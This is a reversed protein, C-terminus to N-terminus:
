AVLPEEAAVGPTAIPGCVQRMLLQAAREGSRLAGEMYGFCGMHTHEGAFFLRDRYARALTRGVTLVQGKSPSAYGTRIFPENPWDIFLLKPNAPYKKYLAKLGDICESRNPSRFARGGATMPTPILPGAFVSLVAGQGSVFTQNDTGEWVQGLKLSGGYPAAPPAEELWFKSGTATFCKIAPGAGMLGVDTGLDRKQSGSVKRGDKALSGGTSVAVKSWVPPPVTFVVYDYLVLTPPDKSVNGKGDTKRSGVLVGRDTIHFETVATRILVKAGYKKTILASMRTAMAGCGEACRFIELEDWYGTAIGPGNMRSGQGAKVKCLLGLFNMDELQALENNVLLHTLMNWLPSKPPVQYRRLLAEAVSEADLSALSPYHSPRGPANVWPEDARWIWNKADQAISELVDHMQTSLKLYESNSLEHGSLVLKLKLGQYDYYEASMRSIVSLKLALALKLWATHFSGILEAGEETIRGASFKSNSSVRGGPKSRAEYLHVKVGKRSLELAAMLGALGGGIVAVSTGKLKEVCAKTSSQQKLRAATAVQQTVLRPTKALLQVESEFRLRDRLM